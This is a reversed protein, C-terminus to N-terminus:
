GQVLIEVDKGFIKKLSEFVPEKIFAKQPIAMKTIAKEFEEWSSKELTGLSGDRQIEAKELQKEEADIERILFATNGLLTLEGFKEGYKIRIKARDLARGRKRQMYEVMFKILEQASKRVEDIETKTLKG